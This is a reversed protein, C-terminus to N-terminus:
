LAGNIIMALFWGTFAAAIAVFFLFIWANRIRRRRAEAARALYANFEARTRESM